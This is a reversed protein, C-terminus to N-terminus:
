FVITMQLKTGSLESVGHGNGVLVSPVLVLTLIAFLIKASWYFQITTNYIWLKVGYSCLSNCTSCHSFIVLLYEMSVSYDLVGDICFLWTSWRYLIILYEMSVSYDLVGDICFLWTSCRYLIILYEMSVSYDLVGDICFLWTSWRYLIILYEM